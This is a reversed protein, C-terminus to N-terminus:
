NVFDIESKQQNIWKEVEITQYQPQSGLKFEKFILIDKPLEFDYIRCMASLKGWDENTVKWTKAEYSPAKWWEKPRVNIMQANYWSEDGTNQAYALAYCMMQYKHAEQVNGTKFDIIAPGKNTNAILDVTGAFNVPFEQDSDWSVRKEVEIPKVEYDHLFQAAAALHIMMRENMDPTVEIYGTNLLEEVHAHFRTGYDSTEKLVENIHEASNDKYWQQLHVPTPLSNKVFETVSIYWKGDKYYWRRGNRNYQYM